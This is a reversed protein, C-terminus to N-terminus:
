LFGPPLEPAKQEGCFGYARDTKKSSRPALITSSLSFKEYPTANNV